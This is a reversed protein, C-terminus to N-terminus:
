GDLLQRGSKETGLSQGNTGALAITGPVSFVTTLNVPQGSANKVSVEVYFVTPDNDSFRVDVYNIAYLMEAPAVQQYKRQGSQLNQVQKLAEVVDEKILSAAAGAIKRGIRTVIMSGYRTHFPNSGRVTLIAKLCAQYLLDENSITYVLGEPDFRYDNEVYTGGCRPCREPMATYSVKFTPNGAVPSNFKPYRAPVLVVGGTQVTPYVDKRAVLGWSPYAQTGRAGIQVFGLSTAGVGGVRLFSEVGAKKREILLLAKNRDSVTVLDNVASLRLVKQVVALPVRNGLPLRVSASGEQTTVTFLDGDPGVTGTCRQILYPAAVGAGLTASSFLGEAPIHHANNALIRVSGAGAVPARTQLTRRDAGITVTEEVVM